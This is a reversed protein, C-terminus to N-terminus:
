RNKSTNENRKRIKTIYEDLENIDRELEDPDPMRGGKVLAQDHVYGSYKSMVREIFKYDDDTFTVGKLRTTEISPRFREISDAFLIEEISRECTERLKKYCKETNIEYQEREGSKYARKVEILVTNRIYTMRDKVKMACWPADSDCLGSSTDNSWVNQVLCSVDQKEAECRLAVFFVLDHTFIIVQRKKSEEVLRLAVNERRNQDLSSVPDDFIIGCKSPSTHLESLFSALAIARQEGESLVDSLNIEPFFKSQLKLQHFVVGARGTKNLDVKIKNVKLSAFEKKLCVKLQDTIAKEMM